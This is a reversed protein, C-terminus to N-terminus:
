LSIYTIVNQLDDVIKKTSNINTYTNTRTTMCIYLKPLINLTPADMSSDEQTRTTPSNEKNLLNNIKADLHTSGKDQHHCWSFQNIFTPKKAL